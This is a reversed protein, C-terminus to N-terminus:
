YGVKMAVMVTGIYKGSSVEYGYYNVEEFYNANNLNRAFESPRLLNSSQTKLTLWQGDFEFSLIVTDPPLCTNIKNFIHSNLKPMVAFATNLSKLETLIENLDTLQRQRITIDAIQAAITPSDVYSQLEQNNEKLTLDDIFLKASYAGMLLLAAIFIAVFNISKSGQNKRKKESLQYNDLLNITEKKM